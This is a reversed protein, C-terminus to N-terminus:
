RINDAPTQEGALDMKFASRLSERDDHLAALVM